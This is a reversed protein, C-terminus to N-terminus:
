LKVGPITALLFRAAPEAYYHANSREQGVRRVMGTKTLRALAHSTQVTTIEALRALENITSGPHLAATLVVALDERKERDRERRIGGMTAGMAASAAVGCLFGFGLAILIWNM